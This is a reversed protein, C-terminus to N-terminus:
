SQHARSSPIDDERYARKTREIEGLIEEKYISWKGRTRGGRGEDEDKDEEL